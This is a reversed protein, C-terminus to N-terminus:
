QVQKQLIRLKRIYNLKKSSINRTYKCGLTCVLNIGKFCAKTLALFVKAESNENNFHKILTSYEDLKLKKNMNM